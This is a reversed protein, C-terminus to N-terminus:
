RAVLLPSALFVAGSGGSGDTLLHTLSHADTSTVRWGFLGFDYVAAACVTCNFSLQWASFCQFSCSTLPPPSVTWRCSCPRCWFCCCCCFGGCPIVMVVVVVKVISQLFSFAHICDYERMGLRGGFCMTFCTVCDCLTHRMLDSANSLPHLLLMLLLRERLCCCWCCVSKTM